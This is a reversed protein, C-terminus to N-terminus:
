ASSGQGAAEQLREAVLPLVNVLAAETGGPVSGSITLTATLSGAFAFAMRNLVYGDVGPVQRGARAGARISVTRRAVRVQLGPGSTGLAQWAVARSDRLDTCQAEAPCGLVQAVEDATVLVAPGPLAREHSSQASAEDTPGAVPRAAFVKAASTDTGLAFAYARRRGAPTGPSTRRWRALAARGEPTVREGSDVLTVVLLAACYLGTAWWSLTGLHAELRFITVPGLALVCLLVKTSTRAGERTLGRLRSDAVVEHRFAKVLDDKGSNFMLAQAPFSGRGDALAAVHSVVRREYPTLTDNPPRQPLVCMATGSAPSPSAAQGAVGAAGRPTVLRFWGRAALDLLTARYAARRLRRALLGV